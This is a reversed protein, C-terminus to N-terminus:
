RSSGGGESTASERRLLVLRKLVAMMLELFGRERLRNDNRLQFAGVAAMALVSAILILPLAFLPVFVSSAVLTGVIVIYAILYFSGSVWPNTRGVPVDRVPSTETHAKRDKTMQSMRRQLRESREEIGDLLRSVSVETDAGEPLFTGMGKEELRLLHQYDVPRCNENPVPVKEVVGLGPITSHIHEFSSRIVALASRRGIAPGAISIYIRGEETDGKVLAKSGDIRLLVGTRWYTQRSIAHSMRVIFRSIVSGPLIPYHYEFNLADEDAWNLDPEEKPLLDPILFKDGGAGDFDFCLEFKRMMGILFEHKDKPYVALDLISDLDDLRLVGKSQFLMHANLIRYIGNTVWRPNLINTDALRRDGQFNLVVGLDNLFGLLVRRDASDDVHHDRCLEEYRPLPIYNEELRELREKVEFWETPLSDRLHPLRSLAEQVSAKLGDIGNGVVGPREQFDGFCSTEVFAVIRNPYKANLGRINLDLRHEDSHNVVVICPSDGGFSEIIKLWYEIRGEREGQRADLVLVYISRKTLFFQHTAHLIEQGGFDWINLRITEDRLPRTWRTIEIGETKLERADARGETLMRVLSTKGVGGQGVLLLKAENLRRKPVPGYLRALYTLIEPANPGSPDSGQSLIEPPIGLRPNRLLNLRRLDALATLEFPLETLDNNELSLVRLHTMKTIVPPVTTFRNSNLSLTFLGTLKAISDPLATLSNGYVFLHRLQTLRGISEPLESLGTDNLWLTRLNVLRTVIEPVRGFPLWSLELDTLNALRALTDPLETIDTGDLILRQLQHLQTVVDPFVALPNRALDLDQLDQLTAFSAPIQTLRNHGLDLTKLRTLQGIADPLVSLANDSLDLQELTTLNWLATPFETLRAGALSLTTAGAEQAAQIADPVEAPEM